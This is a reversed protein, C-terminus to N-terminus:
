TSNMASFGKTDKPTDVADAKAAAPQEAAPAQGQQEAAPATETASAM